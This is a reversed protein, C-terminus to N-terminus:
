GLGKTKNNSGDIGNVFIETEAQARKGFTDIRLCSALM